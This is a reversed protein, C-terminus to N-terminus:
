FIVIAVVVLRLFGENMYYNPIMPIIITSVVIFNLPLIVRKLYDFVALGEIRNLLFLTIILNLIVFCITISYAFVPSCGNLLFIYCVPLVLINCTAGTLQYWKMRGSSHIIASFSSSFSGLYNLLISIIIFPVLMILFMKEWGYICYM